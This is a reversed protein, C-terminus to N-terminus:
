DTGSLKKKISEIEESLEKRSSKFLLYRYVFWVTYGLGVLEMIKPLLPVRNIAGVVTSTLWIAVISGGGNQMIRLVLNSSQQRSHPKILIQTSKETSNKHNICYYHSIYDVNDRMESDFEVCTFISAM